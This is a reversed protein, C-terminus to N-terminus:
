YNVKIKSKDGGDCSIPLQMVDTMHDFARQGEEAPFDKSFSYFLLDEVILILPFFSLFSFLLSLSIRHFLFFVSM